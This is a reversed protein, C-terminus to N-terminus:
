LGNLGLFPRKAAAANNQQSRSYFFAGVAALGIVVVGAIVYMDRERKKKEVAGKGSCCSKQTTTSTTAAEAEAEQQKAENIAAVEVGKKTIDAWSKAPAKAVDILKIIAAGSSPPSPFILDRLRAEDTIKLHNKYYSTTM